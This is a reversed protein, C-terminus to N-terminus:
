RVELLIVDDGEASLNLTMSKLTDSDAGSFNATYGTPLAQTGLTVSTPSEANVVTVSFSQRGAPIVIEQAGQLRRVYPERVAM